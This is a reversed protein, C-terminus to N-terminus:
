VGGRLPWRGLAIHRTRGLLSHVLVVEGARWSIPDVTEAPVARSDYALTVHPEFREKAAQALGAAGLLRAFRAHFDHLVANGDRSKLVFPKKDQRGVFSAVEDFRVDFPDARLQAAARGAADVIAPPLGAWDGLHFLTVHFRDVLLPKGRLGHRACQERALGAIRGAVDAGPFLAFFLRDTPASPAFGAFSGQESM